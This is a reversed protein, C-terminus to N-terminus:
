DLFRMDGEREIRDMTIRIDEIPENFRDFGDTIGGTLGIYLYFILSCITILTLARGGYLYANRVLRQEQEEIAQKPGKNEFRFGGSSGGTSARDESTQISELRSGWAPTDADGATTIGDERGEAESQREEAMRQRQRLSRMADDWDMDSDESQLVVNSRCGKTLPVVPSVGLTTLPAGPSLGLTAHPLSSTVLLFVFISRPM